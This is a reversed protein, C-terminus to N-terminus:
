VRAQNEIQLVGLATFLKKILYNEENDLTAGGLSAIGMTRATRMATRSARGPRRAAPRSAGPRRDHGDRHRPRPGALRPTPRRYRVRTQRDAATTLQVAARAKRCLRGRTIPTDPDGEIQVVKEDRVHWTRAAASRATRASRSSWGTPPPPAPASPASRQNAAAGPASNTPAPPQRWVPWGGPRDAGSM